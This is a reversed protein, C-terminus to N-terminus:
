SLIEKEMLYTAVNEINWKGKECIIYYDSIAIGDKASVNAESSRKNKQFIIDRIFFNSEKIADLLSIWDSVHNSNFTIIFKKGDKLVRNVESFLNALDSGYKERKNDRSVIIEKDHDITYIPKYHELWSVWVESLDCYQIISGYPPDTIALDITKDEIQKLIKISDGLYHRASNPVKSGLYEESSKLGEIVGTTNFMNKKFSLVPNQEFTSNAIMYAPRGWSTSLPRNSKKSRPICMRSTLHLSQVFAFVLLEKCDKDNISLIEDYLDSLIKLNRNTWIGSINDVGVKKIFGRSVSKITSLKRNPVWKEIPYEVNDWTREDTKIAGCKKCRYNITKKGNITYNFIDTKEGCSSCKCVYERQYCETKSIKEIVENAKEKISDYDVGRKTLCNICLDSIPNIDITIPLRGLRICEFFTMGSGVFPDLVINGKQTNKEIYSGWINHPKKGWYKMVRYVRPRTQERM